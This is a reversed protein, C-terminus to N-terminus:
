SALMDEDCVVEFLAAAEDEAARGSAPGADTAHRFFLRMVHEVGDPAVSRLDPEFYSQRGFQGTIIEYSPFYWITPDARTVEEAAARLIAKSATTSVLVHRPEFTAALPVPSVTLIMRARPNIEALRARFARLDAVVEAVGFNVFEHAAPDFAGGAVGPALPLVAQDHRSRWAETLGLTFVFVDLEGFMRRVAALHAARAALMAAEDAFGAPEVQPRFPDVIRGDERRWGGERPEFRGTARDLLQLLQRATYLNGYRASFLGYQAANAARESMGAPPDEVVFHRYGNSTLSRAIHQAFCSGATAIRTAAGIRFPADPVPDVEAPPVAAMAHRWFRDDPLAAYPHAAAGRKAGRVAPRRLSAALAKWPPTELRACVIEGPACGDYAAYSREIMEDLEFVQVGDRDRREFRYSGPIGLRAAVPPYVPLTLGEGLRDRVTPGDLPREGMRLLISRAVDQIVHVKPHNFTHMFCGGRVWEGFLAELAIDTSRGEKLLADRSPEWTDFYGLAEFTEERFLAATEAAPLGQKWGFLALASHCNGMPGRLRGTASQPVVADPFYGTFTLRPWSILRGRDGADLLREAFARPRQVLIWDHAGANSRLEALAAGSSRTVEAEPLLAALCDALGVAQCNGLIHIRMGSRGM